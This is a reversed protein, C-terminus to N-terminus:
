SASAIILILSTFSHDAKRPLPFVPSPSLRETPADCLQVREICLPGATEIQSYGHPRGNGSLHMDALLRMCGPSRHWVGRRASGLGKKTMTNAEEKRGEMM